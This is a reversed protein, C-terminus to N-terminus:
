SCLSLETSLEVQRMQVIPLRRMTHLVYYAAHWWRGYKHRRDRARELAM